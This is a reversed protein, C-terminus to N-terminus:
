PLKKATYCIDAIQWEWGEEHPYERKLEIIRKEKRIIDYNCFYSDPEDDKYYSCVHGEKLIGPYWDLEQIFEGKGIEAGEGYLFDDVSAFNIFVIGNHRIVRDIETVTRAVHDKSLHCFTNISYVFSVSEDKFPIHCANSKMVPLYINHTRSFGQTLAIQESSIDIGYGTFGHAIFLALPPNDGGAGCDLVTKELPSAICEKLFGYLPRVLPHSLIFPEMAYINM